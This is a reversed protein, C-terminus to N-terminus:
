DNVNQLHLANLKEAISSEGQLGKDVARLVLNKAFVLMNMIAPYEPTTVLIGSDASLFLDLTNFSTGASLDLLVYRAPLQKLSQLLRTKQDDDIDAMFPMRGDGAIFGLGPVSTEIIMEEPACEVTGRLFEGIGVYSNELGLFSHLNSNGLDLDVAVTSHGRLALAIALNATLFTKGVGGKGGAIPIITPGNAGAISVPNTQQSM